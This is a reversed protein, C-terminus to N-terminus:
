CLIIHLFSVFFSRRVKITASAVAAAVDIEYAGAAVVVVFGVDARDRNTDDL